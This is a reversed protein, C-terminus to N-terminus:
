KKRPKRPKKPKPEGNAMAEACAKAYTEEGEKEKQLQQEILEADLETGASKEVPAVVIFIASSTVIIILLCDETNCNIWM